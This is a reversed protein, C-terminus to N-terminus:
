KKAEPALVIEADAPMGPKAFGDPNDLSIKVGFVQKVRDERFYINEPTFSAQTDIASIRASLPKDPASDLFVKAQQGVRVKGIDGEPIYGRLYVTNPNIVTLLTKGTTVVVGPEVIRTTVVGDIPSIINLDAIKTQTEQQAAKANVVEAQAAALKLRTQALQTRLGAMQTNRISPNLATTQAQLLQGQASDVLKRFSDVSAQRSRVASQATEWTTQAQDFQQQTVAGDALLKAFRDRNTQALKLESKAQQLQAEAQNFQAASAAVSSEAQFIRGKADGQAQELNLAQEQIQTELLNIQLRAQLEQQQTSVLRATAGKLQAEIQEDDLQVIVQGKRVQDGERVAVAEIRGAVKAGIDTEYGEIRGSVRLPEGPKPLSLFYWTSVGVGTLLLGLPILVPPSFKRKPKPLAATEATEQPPSLSQAM